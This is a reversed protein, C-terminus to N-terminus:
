ICVRLPLERSALRKSCLVHIALRSIGERERTNGCVTEHSKGINKRPAVMTSRWPRWNEKNVWKSLGNTTWRPSSSQSSVFFFFFVPCCCSYDHERAWIKKQQEGWNGLKPQLSVTIWRKARSKKEESSSNLKLVFEKDDIKKKNRGTPQM